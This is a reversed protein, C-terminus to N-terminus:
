NGAAKLGASRPVGNGAGSGMMGGRMMMQSCYVGGSPQYSYTRGAKTSATAVPAASMSCSDGGCAHAPSAAFLGLIGSTLGLAVFKMM